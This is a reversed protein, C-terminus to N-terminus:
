TGIRRLFPRTLASLPHEPWLLGGALLSGLLPAHVASTLLPLPLSTSGMNSRASRTTLKLRGSLLFSFSKWSGYDPRPPPPPPMAHKDQLLRTSHGSPPPRGTLQTPLLGVGQQRLTLRSGPVRAPFAAGSKM